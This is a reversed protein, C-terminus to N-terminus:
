GGNVVLISHCVACVTVPRVHPTERGKLKESDASIKM